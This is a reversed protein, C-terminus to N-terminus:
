GTDDPYARWGGPCEHAWRGPDDWLSDALDRYALRLEICEPSHELQVITLPESREVMQLFASAAYM